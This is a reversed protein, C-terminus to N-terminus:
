MSSGFTIALESSENRTEFEAFYLDVKDTGEKFAVRALWSIFIEHILQRPVSLLKEEFAIDVRFCEIRGVLKM